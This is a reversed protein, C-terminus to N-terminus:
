FYTDKFEEVSMIPVGVKKAKETKGTEEDKDKVIVVFTNKSVSNSIKGGLYEIVEQLTKDRFGTLVIKKGSLKSDTAVEKSEYKNLKINTEKVFDNFTGLHKIFQKATKEAFGKISLIKELKKEDSEKSTLIDPYHEFILDIRKEGLGRGFINTVGMIKAISAKELQKHISNYVKKSMREKFGEVKLFDSEKMKLIKPITDYGAQMIRKVNGSSLGDVELGKFFATIRKEQVLLNTKVDKLIIDIDTDTWSYPVDPMKPEPAPTTVSLIYPIVDGSRILKIVAGVGIKNDRIYSGNFGTAYEIKAGGIYVPEIRVRPKLYGHKSPEWLVDVVNAEAIQDSLIMKFAFSHEPNKDKREYKKNDTVIIGDIEYIYNTRWDVLIDSLMKNTVDKSCEWKVNVVNEKDLLKMQELPSVDPIIVEYSVFDIDRYKSPEKKKQNAIGAVLNRANAATKKYKKEFVEKKMILEGRIVIGKTIPLKLYPIMHSIDQGYIGNGRTYLKPEDGTTDYLGSIGDLKGSIIYVGKYKKKWKELYDTDPKIKDMSGMFYPLKVKNKKIPAGIMHIVENSPYNTSIYEKLIDFQIDTLLPTKTNYYADNATLLMTALNDEEVSKLYEIGKDQFEKLAKKKQFRKKKVETKKKKTAQKKVPKKKEKKLTTTHKTKPSLVSTKVEVALGNKREIPNKYELNLFDFISKETPFYIDIRDAKKGDVLNYLGHENMTYGKQLAHHRMVTNFSASGTFYLVAFSYEERPSYLFDLRRAPKGKIQGIVLSKVKGRSLVEKIIGKKILEDMFANFVTDDNNEDTIVIDIDGSNELGRRYSGVIDFSSGKNKKEKKIKKFIKTLEKKYTDIEKRPIRKLIDEYYKLGIKQKDNLVDQKERLEKITTIKHTKVIEQAKKPGIGYVNSFIFVPDQKAKEIIRLTGTKVFENLKNIITEGIGRKSKLEDITMIDNKERMIAEQAKKYANARFFKGSAMMQKHLTGMLKIFDENYPPLIMDVIKDSKTNIIKKETLEKKSELSKTKEKKMTMKKKTKKRKMTKSKSVPKTIEIKKKITKTIKKKDDDVCYGYTKLTGHKSVSTACIKGKSTEYCKDHIKWKYKFPIICKGAKVKANKETKGMNNINTADM